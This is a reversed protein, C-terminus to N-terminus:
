QFFLKKLDFLDNINLRISWRIVNEHRYNGNMMLHVYFATNFYGIRTGVSVSSECILECDMEVVLGSFMNILEDNLSKTTDSKTSCSSLRAASAANM